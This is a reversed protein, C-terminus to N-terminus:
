MLQYEALRLITLMMVKLRKKAEDSKEVWAQSWYTDKDGTSLLSNFKIETKQEPSLDIPLLYKICEDILKVPDKCIDDPFQQVFLILDVEVTAVKKDNKYIDIGYLILYDIYGYRKQISNSNIWYEHFNPKQYFAQWGSITPVSGMTQEMERLAWNFNEWIAYQLEHNAADAFNHSANFTRMTGIILDFPSKIYVGRNAMDHFHDSKFLKELVPKIDWNKEVFYAALPTIVNDEINKDIDYYVFFRYLRRCIYKSVIESNTNFIMDIFDDIEKEGAAVIPTNKFFSSFQKSSSDHRAPIFNTKENATNLDQVRWGTLVKSAEVVDPQSYVNLVDKGITFLEQIERAFNEDPAGKKNAQNNLQFMMAPQTSINRILQKYNGMANDRLNKMYKYCIRASNTNAFENPSQSVTEFDVPIFHYWFLTMKERITIDQNLALGLSWSRLSQTRQYNTDNGIDYGKFFDDVWSSGYALKNEDPKDNEYNNVPPAPPNVDTNLVLDVADSFPLKALRDVDAIKFGFGTRRLLHIAERTGWTGSYINLTSSLPKVRATESNKATIYNKYPQKSYRRGNYIKRSYKEFLPDKDQANNAFRVILKQFLQRRTLTNNRM